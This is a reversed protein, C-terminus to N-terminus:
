ERERARGRVETRLLPRKLWPRVAGNPRELLELVELVELLLLKLCDVLSGFRMRISARPLMHEGRCAKSGSHFENGALVMAVATATTCITVALAPAVAPALAPLHQQEVLYTYCEM